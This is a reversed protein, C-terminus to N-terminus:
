RRASSTMRMPLRRSGRSSGPDAKAGKAAPPLKAPVTTVVRPKPQPASNLWKIDEFSLAFAQEPAGEAVPCSLRVNTLTYRYWEPVDAPRPGTEQIHRAFDASEAYTVQPMVAGSRCMQMLRALAPSDKAVALSLVSAGSTPAFSGTFKLGSEKGSIGRIEKRAPQKRWYNAESRVWGKFTGKGGGNVGPIEVYSPGIYDAWASTSATLALAAVVGRSLFRGMM